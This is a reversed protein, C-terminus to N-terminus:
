NDIGDIQPPVIITVNQIDLISGTKADVINIRATFAKAENGPEYFDNQAVVTFKLTSGPKAPSATGTSFNTFGNNYSAGNFAAPTATPACSHEPEAPPAIYELAEVKKIFLSTDPTTTLGDDAPETYLDFVSYKVLADVGNIVAEGLGGGDGNIDYKLTTRGAGACAPVVAGTENAIATLEASPGGCGGSSMVSIVKIGKAILPTSAASRSDKSTADTIHMIMPIARERWGTSNAILALSLWGKEECDGGSGPVGAALANVKSQASATDTTPNLSIDYAPDNFWAVGFASDVIRERIGPIITNSLSSKLTGIEGGMSGTTDVNFWIDAMKVTPAFSLVDTKEPKNYPLEFYFKIGPMDTVGQNPDCVGSGVATEAMDSFGDGDVDAYFKADKGLNTCFVEQADGLGDNDSDPDAFDFHGDHDTDLPTEGDGREDKDLIGDGDSDTDLFNPTGDKDIDKVGEFRDEVTDNDSDMDLYDPTGDGDSDIPNDPSGMGVELSDPIYDDDSDQDRYNSAGDDDVDDTGEVSDPISDGDSDQDKYDPTGDNDTDVIVNNPTEIDDSIGDNDCDTDLYDPIGDGDTDGTGEVSDPIGDGDSDKRSSIPTDSDPYTEDGDYTETSDLILGGDDSDTKQNNSVCINDVCLMGGDCDQVTQCPTGQAVATNGCSLM